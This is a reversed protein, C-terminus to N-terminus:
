RLTPNGETKGKRLQKDGGAEAKNKHTVGNANRHFSLSATLAQLAVSGDQHAVTSPFGAKTPGKARRDMTAFFGASALKRLRRNRSGTSM